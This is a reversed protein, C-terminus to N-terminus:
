FINNQGPRLKTRKGDFIYEGHTGEPLGVTGKLVKGERRLDVRIMGNPHPVSGHIVNLHGPNPAVRVSRFGNSSPEIGCVTALLDYLPSASWAHCDSRSPEPREAFTTLGLDLMDKWTGMHDLYRAAHGTKKMARFLYFRYYVTAQILSPDTDLRTFVEKQLRSPIADSLIGMISAHQSLSTRGIDDYMLGIRPDFCNDFVAKNVERRLRKYRRADGDCGFAEFIEVADAMAYSFQASIISSGGKRAGPPVGGLPRDNSWPWEHPWDVFNWHPMAGLMGTDPDLRQEYWTLISRMIPLMSAIFEDDSRHMWYDHLMNIWYLSFPPIFQDIYAPYRSRLLGEASRSRGLCGIAKRMLRDDGSVYLSILAQIRTDGTYQLQEYYPCDFYTEIACLRATRWGTEWIRDLVPDDSSFGGVESFPYGAFRGSLSHVVLPEGATEIDMQVYRYTRLWLPSYVRERGGDLLYIDTFGEIRKGEIENRNGKVGDRFLGEAFTLSVRAGKGGSVKLEPFANTLWGQDFLITAKRGAPIMMPANGALFGERPEAGESRRISTLLETREEMLPIDRPVLPHRYATASNVPTGRGMSGPIDWDGDPYGRQNWGWPYLGGDIIEAPGVDALYGLSPAYAEDSKVKWSADTNVVQELPTDGQVILGAFITMQPGATWRGHHWVTVALVNDGGDLLPAIDISEYYWHQLDGRAPGFCARIGNVFLEYRQDASIHIVFRGPKEDLTFTKRYHNVGYDFMSGTAQTIWVADWKNDLWYRSPECLIAQATSTGTAFAALLLTLIIKRM